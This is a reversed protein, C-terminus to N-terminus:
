RKVCLYKFEHDNNSWHDAKKSAVWAKGIRNCSELSSVDISEIGGMGGYGSKFAMTLILIYTSMIM